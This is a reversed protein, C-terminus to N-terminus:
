KKEGKEQKKIEYLPKAVSGVIEAVSCSSCVRVQIHVESMFGSIDHQEVAIGNVWSHEKCHKIM